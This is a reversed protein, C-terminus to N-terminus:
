QKLAIKLWYLAKAEIINNHIKLKLLGPSNFIYNLIMHPYYRIDMVDISMLIAAKFTADIIEFYFSDSWNITKVMFTFTDNYEQIKGTILVVMFSVSFQELTFLWNFCWMNYIWLIALKKWDFCKFRFEFQLINFLISLGIEIHKYFYLKILFSYQLLFITPLRHDFGGFYM